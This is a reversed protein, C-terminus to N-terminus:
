AGPGGQVPLCLADNLAGAAAEPAFRGIVFDRGARGLKAAKQPRTLLDILRASLAAPDDPAVVYGTVDEVVTEPAGGSRGVILPLGCAAAECFVLGLGEAHTGFRRTSVPLAFVSASRMWAALRDPSLPGLFDVGDQGSAIARLRKGDPGDGALVLRADLEGVETMVKPWAALLTRFGKQRTLRGAALCTPRRVPADVEPPYFVAPDIPPAIRVLKARDAPELVPEIAARAYDSIYSVRDAHHGIRRLLTAAGPVRAWGAEHGHTIALIRRAGAARLRPALLGLPAAAGFVVRTAGRSRLLSVARRATAPTPLLPWALRHIELDSSADHAAWGPARSTLVVVEDAILSTLRHCFAEIGGIRPPFDNTILLTTM